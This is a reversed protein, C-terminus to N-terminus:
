RVCRVVNTSSTSESSPRTAVAVSSFSLGWAASISMMTPNPSIYATSSWFFQAPTAPFATADIPPAATAYLDFLTLLEKVTPLRWGSGGLSTGVGACYTSAAAWTYTTSPVARQWTLKTKTDYVTGTAVTYQGSPAAARAPTAFAVALLVATTAGFYSLKRMNKELRM